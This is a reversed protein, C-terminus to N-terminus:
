WEGRCFIREVAFTLVTTIVNALIIVKFLQKKNDAKRKLLLYVIPTEAALTVLLYVISVTYSPGREASYKIVGFLGNESDAFNAYSYVSFPDVAMWLYPVLFSVTNALAVTPIVLKLCNVKAKCNILYVEIALTLVIVVPLLDYPRTSSIWHWSSNAYANISFIFLLSHVAALLFLLRNKKM